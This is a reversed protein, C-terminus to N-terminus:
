EVTHEELVGTRALLKAGERKWQESDPFEDMLRTAIRRESELDGAKEYCRAAQQLILGARDKQPADAALREYLGAAEAFNGDAEACNAIGERAAFRRAPDGGTRSEMQEFLERARAINGSLFQATSLHYRIEAGLQGGPHRELLSELELAARQYDMAQMLFTAESIQAQIERRARTRSGAVLASVAAVLVIGAAVALFLARHRITYDRVAYFTTVLKDEQEEQKKLRQVL